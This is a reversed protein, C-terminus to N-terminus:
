AAKQHIRDIVMMILKKTQEKSLEVNQMEVATAEPAKVPEPMKASVAEQDRAWTNTKPEFQKIKGNLSGLSENVWKAGWSMSKSLKEKPCKAESKGSTMIAKAWRAKHKMFTQHLHQVVPNNPNKAKLYAEAQELAKQRATGLSGGRVWNSRSLGLVFRIFDHELNHKDDKSLSKQLNSNLNLEKNMTSEKKVKQVTGRDQYM